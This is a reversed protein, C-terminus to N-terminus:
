ANFNPTFGGGAYGGGRLAALFQGNQQAATQLINNTGQADRFVWFLVVGLVILGAAKQLEAM